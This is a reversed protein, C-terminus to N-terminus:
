LPAACAVVSRTPPWTCIINPGVTAIRGSACAPFIRASATVEGFREASAGSRGVMISLPTGAELHGAPVPERRRGARGLGPDGLEVGLGVARQLRRVQDRLEAQLAVLREAARRLLHVRLDLDSTSRQVFIMRSAPM